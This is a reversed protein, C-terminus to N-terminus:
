KEGSEIASQAQDGGHILLTTTGCQERTMSSSLSREVAERTREVTGEHVVVGNWTVTLPRDLDVLRDLLHLTLETVPHAAGPDTAITITQGDVTAEVRQRPKAKSQEVELWYYRAHVVDDQLWIVRSPWADRTRKAMWPLAERDEGDMWHGKGPYIRVLHDYGGPDELRLQALSVRWQAAIGNRNYAGDDGGMFLAFPLNRLGDPRTENPHGAMMAAAAFRDSMRPALQYVGDGGASYGMIYVRDPNVGRCAVFAQIMRDFLDDVHGQHWLNWSDTPARPAVYYGEEPEYLRIQNEWQQDNVKAPAGGGGHMSIWLSHGSRPAEGFKKVKIRLERDGVRFAKAKLEPELEKALATRKTEWLEQVVRQAAEEGLAEGGAGLEALAKSSGKLYRATVEVADVGDYSRNWVLPFTHGTARWSTAWVAHNVDGQALPKAQSADSVFWGRDLGKADYEDAGTFRWRKGDWIEPWTHNGRDDHWQAVGAARAPIGVSRCADVLLITLGTCTARGQAISESPSANPRKRGTNYHVNVEGFLERNIAQVAEEITEADAVIPRTRALMAPRWSERTEDLVAYPLVDNLFLDDSISSAWPFEKRAALALRLNDMLLSGDELVADSSPRHEALFRAAKEGEPGLETSAAEVFQTWADSEPAPTAASAATPHVLALIASAILPMSFM